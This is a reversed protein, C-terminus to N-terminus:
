HQFIGGCRADVTAACRETHNKDGGLAAAFVAAQSHVVVVTEPEATQYTALVHHIGYVVGGPEVVRLGVLSLRHEEIGFAHCGDLFIMVGLGDARACTDGGVAFGDIGNPRLVTHCPIVAVSVTDIIHVPVVHHVFARSERLLMIGAYVAAAVFETEVSGHAIEVLVAEHIHAAITVFAIVASGLHIDLQGFPDAHVVVHAECAGVVM